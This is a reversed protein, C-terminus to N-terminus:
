AAPKSAPISSRIACSSAKIINPHFCPASPAQCPFAGRRTSRRPLVPFFSDWLDGSRNSGRGMGVQNEHGSPCKHDAEGGFRGTFPFGAILAGATTKHLSPAPDKVVEAQSFFLIIKAGSGQRKTRRGRRALGTAQSFSSYTPVTQTIKPSYGYEASITLCENENKQM